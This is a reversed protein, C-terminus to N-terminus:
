ITQEENFNDRSLSNEKLFKYVFDDYYEELEYLEKRKQRIEQELGSKKTLYEEIDM